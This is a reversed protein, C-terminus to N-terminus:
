LFPATIGINKSKIEEKVTNGVFEYNSSYVFGIKKRLENVNNIHSTRKIVVDDIKLEGKTPRKIAMILKAIISLDENLFGVISGQNIVLNIDELYKKESSSKKNEIYSLKNFVIEM